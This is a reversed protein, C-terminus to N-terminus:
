PSLQVKTSAQNMPYTFQSVGDQDLNFQQSDHHGIERDQDKISIKGPSMGNGLAAMSRANGENYQNAKYRSQQPIPQKRAKTTQAVDDEFYQEGDSDGFEALNGVQKKKIANKAQQSKIKKQEEL